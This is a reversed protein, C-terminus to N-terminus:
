ITLVKTTRGDGTLRRDLHRSQERWHLSAQQVPPGGWGAVPPRDEVERYGVPVGLSASGLEKPSSGGHRFGTSPEQCPYSAQLISELLSLNCNLM